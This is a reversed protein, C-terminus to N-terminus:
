KEYKVKGKAIYKLIRAKNVNSLKLLQKSNIKLM